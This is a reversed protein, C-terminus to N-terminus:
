SVEEPTGACIWGKGRCDTCIAVLEGDDRVGVEFSAPLAKGGDCGSCDLCVPCLHGDDPAPRPVPIM